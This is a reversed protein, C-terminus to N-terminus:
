FNTKRKKIYTEEQQLWRLMKFTGTDKGVLWFLLSWKISQYANIKKCFHYSAQFDAWVDKFTEIWHHTSVNWFFELIWSNQKLRIPKAYPINEMWIKMLIMLRLQKQNPKNQLLKKRKWKSVRRANEKEYNWSSGERSFWIRKQHNWLIKRRFFWRLLNTGLGL